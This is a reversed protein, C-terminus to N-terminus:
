GYCLYQKTTQFLKKWKMYPIYLGDWQRVGDNKLITLDFGVLISLALHHKIFTSPQQNPSEVHGLTKVMSSYRGQANRRRFRAVDPQRPASTQLGKGNPHTQFHQTLRGLSIAM